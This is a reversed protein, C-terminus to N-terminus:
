IDLLDLLHAQVTDLKCLAACGGVQLLQAVEAEEVTVRVRPVDTDIRTSGTPSQHVVIKAHHILNRSVELSAEDIENKADVLVVGLVLVRGLVHKARSLLHPDEIRVSVHNGDLLDAPEEEIIEGIRLRSLPLPSLVLGFLLLLLLPGCPTRLKALREERHSTVHRELERRGESKDEAGKRRQIANPLAQIGRVVQRLQSYRVQALQRLQLVTTLALCERDIERLLRSEVVLVDEAHDLRRAVHLVDSVSQLAHLPPFELHPHTGKFCLLAQLAKLVLLAVHIRGHNRPQQEISPKNQRGRCRPRGGKQSPPKEPSSARPGDLPSESEDLGVVEFLLEDGVISGSLLLLAGVPATQCQAPCHPGFASKSM